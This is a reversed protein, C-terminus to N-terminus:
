STTRARPSPLSLSLSLSLSLRPRVPLQSRRLTTAASTGRSRSSSTVPCRSSSSVVKRASASVELSSGRSARPSLSPGSRTARTTPRRQTSAPSRLPRPALPSPTPSYPSLRSSTSRTPAALPAFTRPSPAALDARRSPRPSSSSPFLVCTAVAFLSKERDPCWEVSYVAEGAGGVKWRMACRGVATEWLRVEGDEAGTVVWMGTPDLSVCRVRVGNPHEYTVSRTTPFPRLEQPSPLRPLLESPDKIDLKPRRRLARPALYLDLCRDFREQVFNGYAPVHRLSAFKRPVVKGKKDEPELENFEREEEETWLYEAPPNFSEAHSPLAMKPAPMHMAHPAAPVDDATWLGYFRPKEPARPAGPRRPTIRGARIARVIKMVKKHEWKSPLFRSKPEPRASLPM